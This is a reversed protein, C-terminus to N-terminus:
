EEPCEDFEPAYRYEKFSEFTTGTKTWSYCDNKGICRKNKFADIYDQRDTCLLLTAKEEPEIRSAGRQNLNVGRSSAEIIWGYKLVMGVHSPGDNENKICDQSTDYTGKWFILDVFMPNDTPKAADFQTAANKANKQTCGVSGFGAHWYAYCVLGSCDVGKCIEPKFPNLAEPDKCGWKYPSGLLSGAIILILWRKQECIRKYLVQLERHSYPLPKTFKGGALGGSILYAGSGQVPDLIIYGVGNWDNYQINTKSIIVKKGANVANEIDAIAEPTVQLQPLLDSINNKDITYLPIGQQNALKLLRAASVSTINFFSELILDEWLSRGIGSVVMFDKIRQQNGDIPFTMYVNRRADVGIAEATIAYPVGWLWETEAHSTAMAESQEKTVILQFNKTYLEEEFTIHQLYSLGMNYLMLGLLDDLDTSGRNNTLEEMKDGVLDLPPKYYQIAVGSYDGATVKHTVVDTAKNPIQFSIHFIQDYGLGLHNGTAVTLGNIKIVPKVNLLYPPVNLINGGYQTVLAEDASTAPIYSLTIRKASIEPLTITYSLDTEYTLTNEIAFGIRPRLADPIASYTAGKALVKYPLTAPLYPYEKRMMTKALEITEDGIIDEITADPFNADLYNFLRNSYYQYPSIMYNPFLDQLEAPIPSPSTNTLYDMIYQEGNIGMATHLDMGRRYDYQKFSPDLPIWTKISDDRRTGRYNGYPVYTEVWVHEMWIDSIKGGSRGFSIPVGGSAIFDVASKADAFGGVWNMAKDIPVEITGHVYRAPFNSARLLAILLSATDFANGQRSILTMHAGQISGYTPVFEINNRVWNYIKVPDHNLSAALDRIEQTFQVEITEALDDATPQNTAQAVILNEANQQDNSALLGKLPGNAAILIPKRKEETKQPKLFDREFDKKKLRPEKREIKPISNPLKNPDLPIHRERHINKKLFDRAGKVRAQLQGPQAQEAEDLDAVLSKMNTEFNQAFADHRQIIEAPLEKAILEQRTRALEGRITDAQAQLDSRHQRLQALRPSVDKKKGRDAEMGEFLRETDKLLEQFRAASTVKKEVAPQPKPKAKPAALLDVRFAITAFAVLVCIAIIKLGKFKLGM